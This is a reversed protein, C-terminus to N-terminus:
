VFTNSVHMQALRANCAAMRANDVRAQEHEEVICIFESGPRRARGRKQVLERGTEVVTYCVVLECNTIDLGEEAAATAVLVAMGEAQRFQFLAHKQERSKMGDSSLGSTNNSATLGFPSTALHSQLRRKSNTARGTFAYFSVTALQPVNRLLAVIAHVSQREKVFIIGHWASKKEQRQTLIAVLERFKPFRINAGAQAVALADLALQLHAVKQSLAQILVQSLSAAATESILPTIVRSKAAHLPPAQDTNSTCDQEKMSQEKASQQNALCKGALHQLALEFGTDKVLSLAANCDQLLALHARLHSSTQPVTAAQTALWHRLGASWKGDRLSSSVEQFADAGAYFCSHCNVVGM